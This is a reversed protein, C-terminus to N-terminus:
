IVELSLNIDKQITGVLDDIAIDNDFIMKMLKMSAPSLTPINNLNVEDKLDSIRTYSVDEANKKNVILGILDWNAVKFKQIVNLTYNM